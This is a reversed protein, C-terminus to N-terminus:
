KNSEQDQGRDYYVLLSLGFVILGSLPAIIIALWGISITKYWIVAAVGVALIGMWILDKGSPETIKKRAEPVLAPWLCSLVGTLGAVWLFADLWYYRRVFGANLSEILYFGLYAVLSVQFSFSLLERTETPSFPWPISFTIKRM